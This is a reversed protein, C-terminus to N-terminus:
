KRRRRKPAPPEPEPPEAAAEATTIGSDIPQPEAAKNFEGVLNLVTDRSFVGAQLNIQPPETKSEESPAKLCQARVLKEAVAVSPPTWM